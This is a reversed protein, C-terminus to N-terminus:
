AKYEEKKLREKEEQLDKKTDTIYKKVRDGVKMKSNNQKTTKRIVSYVKKLTHIKQCEPCKKLKEGM